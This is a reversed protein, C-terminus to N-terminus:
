VARRREKRTRALNDRVSWSVWEAMERVSIARLTSWDYIHHVSGRLPRAKYSITAKKTRLKTDVGEVTASAYIAALDPDRRSDRRAAIALAETLLREFRRAQRAIGPSNPDISPRFRRM